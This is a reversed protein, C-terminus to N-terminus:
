GSRKRYRKEGIKANQSRHWNHRCVKKMNQEIGGGGGRIDLLLPADRFTAGRLFFFELCMIM